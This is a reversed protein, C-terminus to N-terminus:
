VPKYLGFSCSVTMVFTYCMIM